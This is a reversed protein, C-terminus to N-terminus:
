IMLIQVKDYACVGLMISSHTHQNKDISQMSKAIKWGCVGAGVGVLSRSELLCFLIPQEFFVLTLM